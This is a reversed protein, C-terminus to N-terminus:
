KFLYNYMVQATEARSINKTPQLNGNDGFFIRGAAAAMAQKAYAGTTEFDNFVLNERALEELRATVDVQDVAEQGLIMRMLILAVDQRNIAADPDFKGTEFGKVLGAKACATVADYYWAGVTVDPFGVGDGDKMVEPDYRYYNYLMQCFEARTISKDPWFMLDADGQFLGEEMTRAIAKYYWAKANTIDKMDEITRLAIEGIYGVAYRSLHGVTFSLTKAAADYGASLEELGGADNIHFIRLDNPNEGHGLAYPITVTLQGGGFDTLAMGGGLLAISFIPRSAIKERIAPKEADGVTEMVADLSLRNVDLTVDENVAALASLVGGNLSVQLLPSVISLVDIGQEKAAALSGKPLVVSQGSAQQYMEVTLTAVKEGQAAAKIAATLDEESATATAKGASDVFAEVSASPEGIPGPEDGGIIIPDSIDYLAPAKKVFRDYAVLAYTAQETGMQNVDGDAVHRFGGSEADQYSLLSAIVNKGDKRFRGDKLPDIQLACLATLVQADSEVTLGGSTAFGGSSQQMSSLAGLAKDVAAKIEEYSPGGPLALAGYAEAGMTYYRALSQLGMGTMDSDAEAAEDSLNWGGNEKARDLVYNLLYARLDARDPLYNNSDLAILAWMAGNVGQWVAWYDESDPQKETLPVVLDYIKDGVKVQSADQGLATLALIVRSYETYKRDHLIGNLEGVTLYANALYTKYWADAQVGGRALDLVAWEGGVSGIKPDPVQAQVYQLAKQLEETYSIEPVPNEPATKLVEEAAELKALNPVYGQEEKSLDDYLKRATEIVDKDGQLVAAAEPLRSIAYTASIHAPEEDKAKFWGGYYPPTSGEFPTELTYDNVYHWIIEDGHKVTVTNAAAAYVGNLAYMWGSGNGNDFESLEYGGLAAPAKITSIYVLGDSGTNKYELGAADLMDTFVDYVSVDEGDNFTYQKTSIWTTYGEYNGNNGRKEDGILRFTVISKGEPKEIPKKVNIFAQTYTLINEDDKNRKEVTVVNTSDLDEAKLTIEGKNNTKGANEGNVYVTAKGSYPVWYDAEQSGTTWLTLTLEDADKLQSSAPELWVPVMKEKDANYYFHVRDGENVLTTAADVIVGNVECVWGADIGAAKEPLSVTPTLNGKRCDFRIDKQEFANLLSHLATYGGYNYEAYPKPATGEEADAPVYATLDSPPNAITIAADNVLNGDYSTARVTVSGSQSPVPQLDAANVAITLPDTSDVTFPVTKALFGGDYVTYTYDGQPLNYILTNEETPTQTKGGINKVLVKTNEPLAFSVATPAAARTVKVTYETKLTGQTRTIVLTNKGVDLPIPDDPAYVTAMDTGKIATMSITANDADTTNYVIADTGYPVAATYNFETALFGYGLDLTRTQWGKTYTVPDAKLIGDTPGFAESGEAPWLSLNSLATPINQVVVASAYRLQRSYTYPYGDAPVVIVEVNAATNVLFGKELFTAEEAASMEEVTANAPDTGAQWYRVFIKDDEGWDERLPTATIKLPNNKGTSIPVNAVHSQVIPNERTGTWKSPVSPLIELLKLQGATRKTVETAAGSDEIELTIDPFISLRNIGITGTDGGAYESERTCRTLEQHMTFSNAYAGMKLRIDSIRLTGAEDIKLPIRTDISVTYQGINNVKEVGNEKYLLDYGDPFLPNYLAGMKYVPTTVGAFDIQAASGSVLPQGPSTKNTVTIDLGKATAVFYEAKGGASVEVINRGEKLQVTYSGDSNAEYSTWYNDNLWDTGSNLNLNGNEIIYPDHVRVNIEGPAEPKFTYSAATDVDETKGTADTMTKTFYVTDFETLTSNTKIGTEGDEGVKVVVVGTNEPWLASYLLLKYSDKLSSPTYWEMADYTILVVSIGPKVGRVRGFQGTKDDETIEVQAADGIVTYHFEPDMNSNNTESDVPQWGRLPVLDYYDGSQLSLQRSHPANLMFNAEYYSQNRIVQKPNDALPRLTLETKDGNWAGVAEARGYRTVKGEQRLMFGTNLPADTSTIIPYNIHYYDYEADSDYPAFEQYDRAMYFKLQSAWTVSMGKPAKVIIPNKKQLRLKGADSMNQGTFELYATAQYVYLHGTSTIYTDQDGPILSYYYYDDGNLAPVVFSTKENGAPYAIDGSHNKMALAYEEEPTYRDIDATVQKFYVQRLPISQGDETITFSGSGYRFGDSEGKVEYQYTGPAVAIKFTSKREEKMVEATIPKGDADTIALTPVAKAADARGCQGISVEVNCVAGAKEEGAALVGPSWLALCFILASLVALAARGQKGYMEM